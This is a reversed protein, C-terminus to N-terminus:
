KLWIEFELANRKSDEDLHKKWTKPGYLWYAGACTDMIIRKRRLFRKFHERYKKPMVDHCRKIWVGRTDNDFVYSDVGDMMTRDYEIYNFDGMCPCGRVEGEAWKGLTQMEHKKYLRHLEQLERLDQNRKM